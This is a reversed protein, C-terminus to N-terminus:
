RAFARREGDRVGRDDPRRDDVREPGTGRGERPDVDRREREGSQATMGSAPIKHREPRHAAQQSRRKTARLEARKTGAGDGLWARRIEVRPPGGGAIAVIREAIGMGSLGPPFPMPSLTHDGECRRLPPRAVGRM